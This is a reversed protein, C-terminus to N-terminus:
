RKAYGGGGRGRKASTMDSRGRVQFHVQHRGWQDGEPVEGTCLGEAQGGILVLLFIEAYTDESDVKFM